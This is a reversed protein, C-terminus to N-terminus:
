DAKDFAKLEDLEKRLHAKRLRKKLAREEKDGGKRLAIMSLIPPIAVLLIFFKDPGYSQSFLLVSFLILGINALVTLYYFICTKMICSEKEKM